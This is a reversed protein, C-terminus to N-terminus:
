RLRRPRPRNFTLVLAEMFNPLRVGVQNVTGFLLQYNGMFDGPLLSGVADNSGRIYVDARGSKVIILERQKEHQYLIYSGPPYVRHVLAAAIRSLFLHTRLNPSFFPVNTLLDMRLQAFDQTLRPPLDGFLASDLMGHQMRNLYTFCMNVQDHLMKPVSRFSLWGSMTDM